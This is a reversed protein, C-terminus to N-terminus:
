RNARSTFRGIKGKAPYGGSCNLNALILNLQGNDWTGPGIGFVRQRAISLTRKAINGTVRNEM